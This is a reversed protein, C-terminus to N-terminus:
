MGRNTADYGTLTVAQARVRVVRHPVLTETGFTPLYVRTVRAFTSAKSTCVYLYQCTLPSIATTEVDVGRAAAGHTCISHALRMVHPSRIHMRGVLRVDILPALIARCTHITHIHMCM